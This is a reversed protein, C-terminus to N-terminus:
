KKREPTPTIRFRVDPDIEIWKWNDAIDKIAFKVRYEGRPLELDRRDWTTNLTGANDTPVKKFNCFGENGYTECERKLIENSPHNPKGNVCLMYETLPRLGRVILQGRFENSERSYDFREVRVRGEAHSFGSVGMVLVLLMIIISSIRGKM